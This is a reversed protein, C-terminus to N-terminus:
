HSRRQETRCNPEPRRPPRTDTLPPQRCNPARRRETKNQGGQLPWGGKRSPEGAGRRGVGFPVRKRREDRTRERGKTEAVQEVSHRTWLFFPAKSLTTAHTALKSARETVPVEQEVKYVQELFQDPKKERSAVPTRTRARFLALLATHSTPLNV